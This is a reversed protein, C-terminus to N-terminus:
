KISVTTVNGGAYIMIAGGQEYAFIPARDQDMGMITFIGTQEAKVQKLVEGVAYRAIGEREKASVSNWDVNEKLIPLYNMAAAGNIDQTHKEIVAIKGSYRFSDLFGGYWLAAGTALVAIVVVLAIIKKSKPRSATDKKPAQGAGKASEGTVEVQSPVGFGGLAESYGTNKSDNEM